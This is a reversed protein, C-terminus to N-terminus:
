VLHKGLYEPINDALDDGNYVTGVKQYLEDATKKILYTASSAALFPDNKALLGVTVGALIDGTTGKTMGPNGGEVIVTEGPSAVITRPGKFVIVCKSEQAKKEVLSILDEFGMSELDKLKIDFLISFEKKNPTVISNRPIWKREMVQLSGADIVWKKDPFKKLISETIVRTLVGEQHSFKRNGDGDKESGFRRFGPGILVADSKRVYAELDGWDVWIFNLLKSKMYEAARGVSPEPTAFFTMDVFRSAVKLAILAAGHFLDSGGIVTVQGNDEGSSDVRPRYLKKLESSKFINSM